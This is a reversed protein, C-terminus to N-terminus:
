KMSSLIWELRLAAKSSSRAVFCSSSHWCCAVSTSFPTVGLLFLTFCSQMVVASDDISGANSSMATLEAVVETDPKGTWAIFDAALTVDFFGKAGTAASTIGAFTGAVEAGAAVVMEKGFVAASGPVALMRSFIEAGGATKIAM